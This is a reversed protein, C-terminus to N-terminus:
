LSVLSWPTLAWGESVMLLAVRLHWESYLLLLKIRKVFVQGKVSGGSNKVCQGIFCYALLPM